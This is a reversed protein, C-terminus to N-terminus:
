KYLIECNQCYRMLRRPGLHSELYEREVIAGGCVVCKRGTDKTGLAEREKRTIDSWMEEASGQLGLTSGSSKDRSMFGEKREIWLLVQAIRFELSDDPKDTYYPRCTTALKEWFQRRDDSVPFSCYYDSEKQPSKMINGTVVLECLRSFSSAFFDSIFTVPMLEQGILRGERLVHILIWAKM